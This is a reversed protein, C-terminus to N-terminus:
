LVGILETWCWVLAKLEVVLGGKWGVVLVVLLLLLMPLLLLLGKPGRGLLVVAAKSMRKPSFWCGAGLGAGEAGGDKDAEIYEPGGMCKELGDEPKM